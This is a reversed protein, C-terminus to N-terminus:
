LVFRNLKLSSKPRLLNTSLLFWPTDKLNIEERYSYFLIRLPHLKYAIKASFSFTSTFPNSFRGTTCSNAFMNGSYNGPKSGSRSNSKVISNFGPVLGV